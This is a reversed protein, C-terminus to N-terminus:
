VSTYRHGNMPVFRAQSLSTKKPEAIKAGVWGSVLVLAVLGLILWAKKVKRNVQHKMSM